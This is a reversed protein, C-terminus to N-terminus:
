MYCVDSGLESALESLDCDVKYLKKMAILVGAIDASSGGLGNAIPIKKDIVINVGPTDYKAMFKKATKYANNEEQLGTVNGKEKLSIFVDKRKKLTIKDYINISAVLSKLDHFGDPTKDLVDLTINIKAPIKVKVKRM